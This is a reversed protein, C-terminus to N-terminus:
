VNCLSGELTVLPFCELGTQRTANLVELGMESMRPAIKDFIRRWEQMTEDTPNHHPHDPHCHIQGNTIQMDYGLLTVRNYGLLYALNIAQFGSNKGTCLVPWEASFCEGHGRNMQYIAFHGEDRGSSRISYKEAAESVYAYHRQWWRTDAAYHYVMQDTFQYTNNVGMIPLGSEECLQVDGKSLSPGSGLIIINKIVEIGRYIQVSYIVIRTM